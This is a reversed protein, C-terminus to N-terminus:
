LIIFFIFLLIKVILIQTNPPRNIHVNKFFNDNRTNENRLFAIVWYIRLIDTHPDKGHLKEFDNQNFFEIIPTFLYIMLKFCKYLIPTQKGAGVPHGFAVWLELDLLDSVGKQDRQCWVHIQDMYMGDLCLVWVYLIFDLKLIKLIWFTKNKILSYM